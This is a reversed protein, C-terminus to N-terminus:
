FGLFNEFIRRNQEMVRHNPVPDFFFEKLHPKERIRREWSALGDFYSLEPHFQLGWVPKGQYQFGQICGEDDSAIIEFDESLNCVEDIHAEMAYLDSLGQFIRNDCIRIKRFGYQARVAKRVVSSGGLFRALVQHGYCLGLVAKNNSIFHHLLSFIKEDWESGEVASLSSGGIILHTFDEADDFYDTLYRITIKVKPYIRDRILEDFRQRAEETLITNLVLLM